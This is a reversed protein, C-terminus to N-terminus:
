ISVYIVGFHFMKRLLPLKKLFSLFLPQCPPFPTTIYSLQGALPLAFRFTRPAYRFFDFFLVQCVPVSAIYYSVNGGLPASRVPFFGPLFTEFFDFFTSSLRTRFRYLLFREM